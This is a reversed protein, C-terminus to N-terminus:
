SHGGKQEKQQQCGGGHFIVYFFSRCTENLSSRRRKRRATQRCSRGNGNTIRNGAFALGAVLNGDLDSAFARLSDGRWRSRRIRLSRGPEGGPRKAPHLWQQPIWGTRRLGATEAHHFAALRPRPLALLRDDQDIGATRLFGQFQKLGLQFRMAIRRQQRNRRRRRQRRVIEFCARSYARESSIAGM